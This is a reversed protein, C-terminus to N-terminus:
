KRLVNDLHPYTTLVRNPYAVNRIIYYKGEAPEYVGHSNKRLLEKISEISVDSAPQFEWESATNLFFTTDTRHQAENQKTTFSMANGGVINHNDAEVFCEGNNFSNSASIHYYNDTTKKFDFWVRNNTQALAVNQNATANPLFRGTLANRLAFGDGNREVFWVSAFDTNSIQDTTKLAHSSADTTWYRNSKGKVRYLGGNRFTNLATFGKELKAWSSEMQQATTLDDGTLSEFKWFNNENTQGEWNQVLGSGGNHWLTKGEFNENTSIVWYDAADKGTAPKIYYKGPNTGVTFTKNLEDLSQIALQDSVSVIWYTGNIRKVKWFQSTKSDGGSHESVYGLQHNKVLIPMKNKHSVIRYYGDQLVNNQSLTPLVFGILLFLSFFIRKFNYSM